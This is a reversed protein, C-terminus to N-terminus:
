TEEESLKELQEIEKKISQEEKADKEDKSGESKQKKALKQAEYHLKFDGSVVFNVTPYAEELEKKLESEISQKQIRHTPKVDYTVLVMDQAAVLQRQQIREEKKVISEIGEFDEAFSQEM